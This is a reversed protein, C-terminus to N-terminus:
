RSSTDGVPVNGLRHVTACEILPWQQRAEAELQALQKEAMEQYCEYSLSATQKGDTLERTTGLFLVVAGALPSGVSELVAATDIPHDTLQIM